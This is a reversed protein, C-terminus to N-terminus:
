TLGIQHLKDRYGRSLTLRAGNRLVVTYEGHFMPHLEKIREINVITSRSIRVFRNAPLRDELANMTDRLFHSETGIHLKVYNDAAEIWDIDAMALFIIRGGSKVALRGPQQPSSKLDDLLATLKQQLEGGQNSEITKRARNLAVQLRGPQCPKMLYDLAHVDFAKLAFNENATVFIIVPMRAPTIESVVDFGDVEPMQVDLFVLEPTLRNIAEIAEKGNPSIGVIEIDSEKELLGRLTDRSVAEDDVILTRIKKSRSTPQIKGEAPSAASSELENEDSNDRNKAEAM